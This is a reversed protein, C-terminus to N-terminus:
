YVCLCLWRAAATGPRRRSACVSYDCVSTPILCSPLALHDVGKEVWRARARCAWYAPLSAWTCAAWKIAGGLHQSIVYRRPCHRQGLRAGNPVEPAKTGKAPLSGLGLGVRRRNWRGGMESGCGADERSGGECRSLGRKTLSVGPMRKQDRFALAWGWRGKAHCSAGGQLGRLVVRLMDRRPARDVWVHQEVVRERARGNGRRRGSRQRYAGIAAGTGM